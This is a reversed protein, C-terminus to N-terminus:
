DKKEFYVLDALFVASLLLAKDEIPAGVPFKIKFNDADSFFEKAAGSWKKLIEGVEIGERYIKLTWPHMVSSEIKYIERNEANEVSIKKRLFAWERKVKGYYKGNFDGVRGEHFFFRFPKVIKFVGAGDLNMVHVELPRLFPLFIRALFSSKEAAFYIDNDYSDKVSYRNKGEFGTFVEVWEVKQKVTVMDLSNLKEM